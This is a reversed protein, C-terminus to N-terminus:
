VEAIAEVPEPKGQSGATELKNEFYVSTSPFACSVGNAKIIDLLALNIDNLIGLYTMHDGTAAYCIVRIDLSSAGYGIFHVRIDDHHLQPNNALYSRISLLLAEMQEKTTSYTVGLTFDIRRKYRKTFNTIPTNSLLSNPVYVLEQPFTRICTSRFSVKEVTGEIGNAQVWDGVKFPKDIIIILSGFVNALADKAAFAIALSGISLSAIFASIDYNWEKAIAVFGIMVLLIKSIAAIFNSITEESKIGVRELLDLMLGHTTDCLNYLGWFISLIFASRLINDVLVLGNLWAVPALNTFSYINLAILIVAVPKEWANVIDQLYGQPKDAFYAELFALLSRHYCFNCLLFFSFAGLSPFWPQLLEYYNNM